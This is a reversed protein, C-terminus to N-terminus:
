PRPVIGALRRSVDATDARTSLDFVPGRAPFTKFRVGQRVAVGVAEPLEFEGRASRPVDRCAQFIRADFRWCNMSICSGSEMAEKHEKHSASEAKARLAGASRRLMPPPQNPPREKSPKEVIGVLHGSEDIDLFAFSRIREAPINSSQVLDDRDFAPLAPESLAALELLAPAPYLNDANMALFPEGTVWSEAALVANATGLPREQVVYDLRVREPPSVSYYDRLAAHDPAVILAVRQVGADALSSLIYDLFPRGNLPIMAKLGADAARQQDPTLMASPDTARMRTGLGRALVIARATTM